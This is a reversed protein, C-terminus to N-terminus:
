RQKFISKYIIWKDKPNQEYLTFLDKQWPELKPLKVKM